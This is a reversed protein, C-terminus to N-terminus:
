KLIRKWQMELDVSLKSSLCLVCNWLRHFPRFRSGTFDLVASPRLVVFLKCQLLEHVGCYGVKLFNQLYYISVKTVCKQLESIVSMLHRNLSVKLASSKSGWLLNPHHPKYYNGTHWSPENTPSHTSSNFYRRTTTVIKGGQNVWCNIKCKSWWSRSSSNLISTLRDSPVHVDSAGVTCM